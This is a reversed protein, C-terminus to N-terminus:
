RPHAVDVDVAPAGSVGDDIIAMSELNKRQTGKSEMPSELDEVNEGEKVEKNFGELHWGASVGVGVGRLDQKTELAHSRASLGLRKGRSRSSTRGNSETEAPVFTIASEVTVKGRVDEHLKNNHPNRVLRYPSLSKM